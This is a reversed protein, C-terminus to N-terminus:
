LEDEQRPPQSGTAGFLYRYQKLLFFTITIHALLLVCYIAFVVLMGTLTHTLGEQTIGASASSPQMKVMQKYIDAILKPEALVMICNAATTVGFFIGVFANVRIWDRLSAKVARGKQIGERLFSFSTFTYIIVSSIIFVGFFGSPNAFSVLLLILDILALFGAIALLVYSLIRYVPLLKQM